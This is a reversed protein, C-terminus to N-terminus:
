LHDGVDLDDAATFVRHVLADFLAVGRENAPDLNTLGGGLSVCWFLVGEHYGRTLQEADLGTQEKGLGAATLSDLYQACLEDELERRVDPTLNTALYYVLDATGPCRITLQWDIVALDGSPGFLLNDLRFDGHSITCPMSAYSHLWEVAGPAFAECWRLVREPVSSGYRDKFAAWGAEFMPVVMETIPSAVTPMWDFGDLRPDSWWTAHFRAIEEIVKRSQEPTGGAVQDVAVMPALDELVLCYQKAEHDCLNVYARPVRLAIHPAVDAYFRSERHWVDMLEGVFRGGPDDTPLKVVVSAPAGPPAGGGYGLSVRALRGMFGEGEAIRVMGVDTVPADIGAAGLSEAFWAPTLEELSSPVAGQDTM